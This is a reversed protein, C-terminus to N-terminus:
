HSSPRLATGHKTILGDQQLKRVHRYLNAADVGLETAIEKVTIGPRDQILRLVDQQRRSQRNSGARRKDSSPSSTAAGRQRANTVPTDTTAASANAAPASQVTTTPRRQTPTHKRTAGRKRDRKPRDHDLSLGLRRAVQELQQFETALPRLERLRAILEEEFRDIVSVRSRLTSELPISIKCVNPKWTSGDARRPWAASPSTVM